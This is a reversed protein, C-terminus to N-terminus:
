VLAEDEKGCHVAIGYIIIVDVLIMTFSWFPNHPLWALQAIANGSAVLIAVVRAWTSGALMGFGALILIIGIILVIWGWTKVNSTLPLENQVAAAVQKSRTIAVLGDIINFFGVVMLLIGVFSKWGYSPRGAMIHEGKGETAAPARGAALVLRSVPRVYGLALV